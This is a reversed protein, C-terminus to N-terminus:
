VEAYIQFHLCIKLALKSGRPTKLIVFLQNFLQFMLQSLLHFSEQTALLKPWSLLAMVGQPRTESQKSMFPPQAVVQLGACIEPLVFGRDSM